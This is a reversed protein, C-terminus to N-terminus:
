KLEVRWGLALVREQLFSHGFRQRYQVFASHGHTFVFASGLGWEGWSSDPDETEFVIPTGDADQAFRVTLARAANAFEHRFGLKLQPQWVGWKTSVTHTLTGDLRGRQTKIVRKPVSLALGDGGRETYADLETKMWDVGAGFQWGWAGKPVSWDLGLGALTRTSDPDATAVAQVTTGSLLTFDIARVLENSGDLRGLYGTFGLNDSPNFSLYGLGGTYDGEASGDSADFDLEEENHSLAAGLVWKDNPMWDLGVSLSQTDGDFAAENPGDQRDLRGVDASIWLSVKANIQQRQEQERGSGERTSSRGQGPIEDLFNGVAAAARSGPGGTFIDACRDALDSGPAAGACVAVWANTLSEEPTQAAAPTAALLALLFLGLRDQM